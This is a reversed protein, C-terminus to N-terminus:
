DKKCFYLAIYPPMNNHPQNGGDTAMKEYGSSHYAYDNNMGAKAGTGGYIGGHPM